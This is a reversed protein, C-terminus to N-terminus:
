RKKAVAIAKALLHDNEAREELEKELREFIPLFAPQGDAILMAVFQHAGEISLQRPGRKVLKIHRTPITTGAHEPMEYDPDLGPAEKMHPPIIVGVM